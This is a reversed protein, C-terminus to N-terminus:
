LLSAQYQNVAEPVPRFRCTLGLGGANKNPNLSHATIQRSLKEEHVRFPFLILPLAINNCFRAFVFILAKM